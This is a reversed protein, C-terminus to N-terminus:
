SGNIPWRRQAADRDGYVDSTTGGDGDCECAAAHDGSGDACGFEGDSDRDQEDRKGGLQEGECLDARRKARYDDARDLFFEFENRSATGNM